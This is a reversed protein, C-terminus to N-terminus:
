LTKLTVYIDFVYRKQSRQALLSPDLTFPKPPGEKRRRSLMLLKSYPWKTKIQMTTFAGCSRNMMDMGPPLSKILSM